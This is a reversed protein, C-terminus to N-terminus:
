DAVLWSGTIPSGDVACTVCTVSRNSHGWSSRTPSLVFPWAGELKSPLIANVAADSYCVDSSMALVEDDGPFDGPALDTRYYVQGWHEESCAVRAVPDSTKVGADANLGELAQICDGAVLSDLRVDGPDGREVLTFAMPILLIWVPLMVFNLTMAWISTKRLARGAANSKALAIQAFVVGVM